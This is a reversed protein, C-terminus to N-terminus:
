AARVCHADSNSSKNPAASERVVGNVKITPYEYFDVVDGETVSGFSKCDVWLTRGDTQATFRPGEYSIGFTGHLADSPELPIEFTVGAGQYRHKGVNV